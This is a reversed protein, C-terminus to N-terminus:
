VYGEGEEKPTKPKTLGDEVKKKQILSDLLEMLKEIQEPNVNEPNITVYLSYEKNGYQTTPVKESIGVNIKPITQLEVLREMLSKEPKVEEKSKELKLIPKINYFTTATGDSLIGPVKDYEFKVKEGEKFPSDGWGSYTRDDGELNIFHKIVVKEDSTGRKIPVKREEARVVVGEATSM